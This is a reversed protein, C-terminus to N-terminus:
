SETPTTTTPLIVWKSLVFFASTNADGVASTNSDWLTIPIPFSIYERITEQSSPRYIKPQTLSMPSHSADPWTNWCLMPNPFPFMYPYPYMYPSPYAGLM